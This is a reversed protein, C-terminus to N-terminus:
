LLAVFRRFKLGAARLFTEPLLNSCLPSLNHFIERLMIVFCLLKVGVSSEPFTNLM